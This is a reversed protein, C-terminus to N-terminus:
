GAAEACRYLYAEGHHRRDAYRISNRPPPPLNGTDFVQLTCLIDIPYGPPKDTEYMAMGRKGFVNSGLGDLRLAM